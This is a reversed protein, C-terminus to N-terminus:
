KEAKGEQKKYANYYEIAREKSIELRSMLRAIIAEDDAGTELMLAIIEYARGEVRGEAEKRYGYNEVAECMSDAGKTTRKHNYVAKSLEGFSSNDASSNKLYQLLKALSSGDDVAANFYYEHVGNDIEQHTEDVMRRVTYKCKYNQNKELFLTDLSAQYYRVRKPHYDKNKVQVEINYLKHEEDEALADLVVSHGNYNRIAYQTDVKIVNLKKDLLRSLTYSCAAKDRMVVAFFDDDMLNFSDAIAMKDEISGKLKEDTRIM